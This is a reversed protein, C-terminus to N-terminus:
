PTWAFVTGPPGPGGIMALRGMVGAERIAAWRFTIVTIRPASWQSREPLTKHQVIDPRISGFLVSDLLSRARGAGFPGACCWTM